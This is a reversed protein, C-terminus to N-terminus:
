INWIKEDDINQLNENKSKIYDPIEVQNLNPKLQHQIDFLTRLVQALKEQRHKVTSSVHDINDAISKALAQSVDDIADQVSKSGSKFEKITNENWKLTKKSNLKVNFDAVESIEEKLEKEKKNLNEIDKKIDEIEVEKQAVQMKHEEYSTDRSPNVYKKGIPAEKDESEINSTSLTKNITETAKAATKVSNSTISAIKENIANQMNDIASVIQDTLGGFIENIKTTLQASVNDSISNAMEESFAVSMAKAANNLERQAKNKFREIGKSNSPSDGM